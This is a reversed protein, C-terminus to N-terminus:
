RQEVLARVAAPGRDAADRYRAVGVFAAAQAPTDPVSEPPRPHWLHVVDGEVRRLPRFWAECAYAFAADEGVPLDEDFGHVTAWTHRSFVAANGVGQGHWECDDPGFTGPARGEFLSQTSEPTLYLARAFPIVLGPEAAALEAAERFRDPDVLSDSGALAIIADDPAEAAIRNVAVSVRNVGGYAGDHTVLDIGGDAYWDRTYNYAARRNRDGGWWPILVTLAM